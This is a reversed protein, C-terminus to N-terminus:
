SGYHAEVSIGMKKLFPTPLEGGACVIIADNALELTEEGSKILVKDPTITKIQSELMVRLAQRRTADEIRQRNKPKVRNFANGRYSLIVTTGPEAAIDLAAELASDGGGVVMVHRERYQEAEILRYVVKPHEEGEVGLKRPTGRRGIALLVTGARYTAKSTRVTYIGGEHSIDEMRENFHIDPKEQDLVGQWLEMLAEKSIERVKIKGILPLDMPATM